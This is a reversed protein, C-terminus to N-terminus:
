NGKIINPRPRITITQSQPLSENGACDKIWYTITHIANNFNVGDGPIQIFGVIASPQGTGTVPSKTIPNHPPLPDPIPSFDIQWRIQVPLCNTLNCNDTFNSTNLDLRTDGQLFTYYEPRDPNIDMTAGYYTAAYLNEVCEIFANPLTFTPPLNDTVTITQSCTSSAGSKTM